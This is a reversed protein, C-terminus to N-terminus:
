MQPSTHVDGTVPDVAWQPIEGTMARGAATTGSRVLKEPWLQYRKEDDRFLSNLIKDVNNSAPTSNVLKPDDSFKVPLNLDANNYGCIIPEVPLIGGTYNGMVDYDTLDFLKPM